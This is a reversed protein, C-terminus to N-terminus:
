FLSLGFFILKKGASLGISSLLLRVLDEALLCFKLDSWFGASEESKIMRPILPALNNERGVSSDPRDSCTSTGLWDIANSFM